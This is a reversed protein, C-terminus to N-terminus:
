PAYNNIFCINSASLPSSLLPHLAFVLTGLMVFPAYHWKVRKGEELVCCLSCVTHSLHYIWFLFLYYIWLIYESPVNIDGDVDCDSLACDCECHSVCIAEIFWCILLLCIWPVFWPVCHLVPVFWILTYVAFFLSLYMVNIIPILQLCRLLPLPLRLLYYPASILSSTLMIFWYLARHDVDM